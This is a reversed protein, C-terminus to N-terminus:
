IFTGHQPKRRKRREYIVLVLLLLLVVVPSTYVAFVTVPMPASIEDEEVDALNLEDEGEAAEEYVCGSGWTGNSCVRCTTENGFAAWTGNACATCTGSGQVIWGPVCGAVLGVVLFWAHLRLLM